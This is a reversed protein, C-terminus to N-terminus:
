PPSPGELSGPIEFGAWQLKKRAVMALIVMDNDGSLARAVAAGEEGEAISPYDGATLLTSIAQNKDMWKERFARIGSKGGDWSGGGHDEGEKSYYIRVRHGDPGEWIEARIELRKQEMFSRYVRNKCSQHGLSIISSILEEGDKKRDKGIFQGAKKKIESMVSKESAPTRIQTSQWLIRKAEESIEYHLEQVTAYGSSALELVMDGGKSLDDIKGTPKELIELMPSRDFKSILSMISMSPLTFTKSESDEGKAVYYPTAGIMSAVHVAAGAMLNTGGTINVMFRFHPGESTREKRSRHSELLPFPYGEHECIRHVAERIASAAGQSFIEETPIAVVLGQEVEGETWQKMKSAYKSEFETTTIVHLSHCTLEGIAIGIHDDKSGGMVIHVHKCNISDGTM